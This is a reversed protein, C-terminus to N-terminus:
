KRCLAGNKKFSTNFGEDDSLITKFILRKDEFLAYNQILNLIIDISESSNPCM